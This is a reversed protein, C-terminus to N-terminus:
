LFEQKCERYTKITGPLPCRKNAKFLVTGPFSGLQPESNVRGALLSKVEFTWVRNQTKTVRGM